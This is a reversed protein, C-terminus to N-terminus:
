WPFSSVRKGPFRRGERLKTSLFYPQPVILRNAGFTKSVTWCWWFRFPSKTSAYRILVITDRLTAGNAYRRAFAAHRQSLGLSPWVEGQGGAKAQVRQRNTSVPWKQFGDEMIKM